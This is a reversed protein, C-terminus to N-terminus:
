LKKADLWRRLARFYEVPREYNAVHSAGPVVIVDSGPLQAAYARTTEPTAGDFEGCILLAPLRLGPLQPTVDLDKLLGTITFETPGNMTVYVSAGMGAFAAELEAPWPEARCVYLRYYAETAAHYAETDVRGSSEGERIAEIHQPPLSAILRQADESWRPISLAPGALIVGRVGEAPPAGRGALADVALISGWSHGYLVVEDLGLAARVAALERVFRERTWLSADEPRDSRGCGLQDYFIVPREDGLEALNALYDHPIGPGGHLVLLPTRAGSGHVEYWVRGGEVPIFGTAPRTLVARASDDAAPSSCAALAAAAALPLLARATPITM